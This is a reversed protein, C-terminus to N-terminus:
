YTQCDEANGPQPPLVRLPVPRYPDLHDEGDDVDDGGDEDGHDGHDGGWYFCSNTQPDNGSTNRNVKDKNCPLVFWSGDLIHNTLKRSKKM